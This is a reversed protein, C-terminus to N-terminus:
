GNRKCIVNNRTYIPLVPTKLVKEAKDQSLKDNSSYKQKYNVYKGIGNLSIAPLYQASSVSNAM